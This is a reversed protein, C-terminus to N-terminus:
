KKESKYAQTAQLLKQNPAPPNLIASFFIEQDRKSQLFNSHQQIIRDAKEQASSFIFDTLTRYGGIEAARKFYQKQELPLEGDFRSKEFNEM